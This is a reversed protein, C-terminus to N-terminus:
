FKQNSVKEKPTRPVLRLQGERDRYTHGGATVLWDHDPGDASAIIWGYGSDGAGLLRQVYDGVKVTRLNTRSPCADAHREIFRNRRPSHPVACSRHRRPERACPSPCWHHQEGGSASRFELAWPQQPRIQVQLTGGRDYSGHDPHTNACCTRTPWAASPSLRSHSRPGSRSRLLSRGGSRHSTRAM